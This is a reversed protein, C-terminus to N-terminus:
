FDIDGIEEGIKQLEKDKIIPLIKGDSDSKYGFHALITPAIDILRAKDLDKEEFSEGNAIFIGEKHHWNVPEKTFVPKRTSSVINYEESSLQILNDGKFNYQISNLKDLDRTINKVVEENKIHICMEESSLCLADTAGLDIKDRVKVNFPLYDELLRYINSAVSYLKENTRLLAALNSINFKNENSTMEHVSGLEEGEKSIELYGQEELWSNVRFEGEYEKFGHDSIIMIENDESLDKVTNNVKKLLEKAKKTEENDQGRILDGYVRHSIWDTISFLVFAFEYGNLDLEELVEKKSEFIGEIEEFFKLNNEYREPSKEYSKLAELAGNSSFVYENDGAWLFSSVVDGEIKPPFSYPLNLLFVDLGQEDLHEFFTKSSIDEGSYIRPNLEEDYEVFDRLGHNEVKSGTQFSAWAPGTVPPETSLLPSFVGEEALKKVDKMEELELLEPSVGDLGIVLLDNKEKM